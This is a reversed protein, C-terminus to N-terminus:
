VRERCSARGIEVTVPMGSAQKTIDADMRAKLVLLSVTAVGGAIASAIAEGRIYLISFLIGALLAFLALVAFPESPIRSSEESIPNKMESGTILQVGTFQMVKQGDCSVQLFPLVFCLIGAAYPAIRVWISKQNMDPKGKEISHSHFHASIGAIVRLHVHREMHLCAQLAKPIAGERGCLFVVYHNSTNPADGSM